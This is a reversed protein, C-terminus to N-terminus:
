KKKKPAAPKPKPKPEPPLPCDKYSKMKDKARKWAKTPAKGTITIKTDKNVHTNIKKAIAKGPEGDGVRVCGHSLPTGNATQSNHIGIGRTDDVGVYWAM